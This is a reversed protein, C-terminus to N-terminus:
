IHSTPRMQGKAPCKRLGQVCPWEYNPDSLHEQHSSLQGVLLAPAPMALGGSGREGGLCSPKFSVRAFAQEASSPCFVSHIYLASISKLCGLDIVGPSLFPKHSEQLWYALQTAPKSISMKRLQPISPQVEASHINKQKNGM